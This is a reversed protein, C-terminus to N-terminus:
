HTIRLAYNRKQMFALAFTCFFSWFLTNKKQFEIIEAIIRM